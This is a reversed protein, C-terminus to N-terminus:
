LSCAYFGRDTQIAESEVVFNGRPAFGPCTVYFFSVSIAFFGL